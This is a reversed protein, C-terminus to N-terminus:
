ATYLSLKTPSVAAGLPSLRLGRVFAASNRPFVFARGFRVDDWVKRLIQKSYPAISRHNSYALAAKLNGVGDVEVPAGNDAIRM